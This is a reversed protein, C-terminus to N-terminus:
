RNHKSREVVHSGQLTLRGQSRDEPQLPPLGRILEYVADLDIYDAAIQAAADISDAAWDHEPTPVLGMHREPFIQDRLKPISGLNVIYMM